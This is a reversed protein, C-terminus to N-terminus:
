PVGRSPSVGDSAIMLSSFKGFQMAVASFIEERRRLRFPALRVCVCVHVFVGLYSRRKELTKIIMWRLRAHTRAGTRHRINALWADFLYQSSWFFVQSERAKGEASVCEGISAFSGPRRSQLSRFFRFYNPWPNSEGAM